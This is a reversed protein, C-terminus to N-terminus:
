GLDVAEARIGAPLGAGQIATVANERGLLPSLNNHLTKRRAAFAARLVARLAEERPRDANERRKLRLISSNVAPEPLFSEPGIEGLIESQFLYERLISIPGYERSGPGCLIREVAEKQLLVTIVSAGRLAFLRQMIESTIGYPLNAAIVFREGLEEACLPELKLRLADGQLIKVNPFPSLVTELVPILGRDIEIALVRKALPALAKTLCGAGAGIELVPQGEAGSQAAIFALREEDMLFNQGLSKVFRFSRARLLLEIQACSMAAKQIEENNM